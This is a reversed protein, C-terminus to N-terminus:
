GDSLVKLEGALFGPHEAANRALIDAEQEVSGYLQYSLVLSPVPVRREVTLVRALARDGPVARLVSARLEVLAPFATDGATAAQDDIREVLENRDATADDHTDYTALPLRRAAEILFLQRLAGALAAQNDRERQRTATTPEVLTIATGDYADLLASFVNRAQEFASEEVSNIADRFSTLVDEPHRALSAANTGLYRIEASLKALEETTMEIALLARGVTEASSRIYDAHGAVAFGALGSTSYNADLEAQAAAVAATAHADVQEPLDPAEDAIAGQTPAEQFELAFIAMGGDTTKERVSVSTCIARRVGHFPHILQGPGPVDELVALLADRQTVYDDGVVYGEVQFTRAKRGLDEVYPNDGYPFEAVEARRGGGRDSSDVFFPVGRFSAGILARGDPMKVRKLNDRWSM